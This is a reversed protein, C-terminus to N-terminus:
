IIADLINKNYKNIDGAGMTIIIDGDQYVDSIINTNISNSEDLYINKQDLKIMEDYILKSSVGEIPKERAPYINLLITIDSKSLAKAFENYFNQTRSFLHPQFVTIVRKNFSTKIANLSAEVESPHHAYDDIILSGNDLENIVELRRKVGSYKSLGNKINKINIELERAITIAALSNYINHLGAASLNIKTVYNSNEYLDFSSNFGEYVINKARFNCNKNIGYTKYPRKIKNLINNINEDDICLAILGYFPLSNAFYLFTDKVDNLDKYCDSHEFDINNILGITPKLSLFSRDFEDAEVVIINGKGSISNSGFDNVIGGIVLTPNLGAEILISGLMSCTTTKGHTGSIAVSTKNLKLLEGLMEARRILPISKNKTELIEINDNKIASSYVVLDQNKINNKSHGINIKIGLNSLYNTRESEKIDSGTINFNLNNLLEAIGSMGIGGIGIFHIKKTKSLM